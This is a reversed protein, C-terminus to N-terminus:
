RVAVDVEQGEFAPLETAVDKWERAGTVLSQIAAVITDEDARVQKTSDRDRLTITSDQVTQFDITVGLPTGLEDNRSYRKGITASSSDVRASIGIKRLKQSIKSVFPQFQKNASLPM